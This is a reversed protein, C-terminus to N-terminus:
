WALSVEAHLDLLPSTREAPGRGFGCETAVGFHPLATSAASIRRRAGEVGDEHHILGLYIDTSAPIRDSIAALPAFYEVDDREIPVPLHIFDVHRPSKEVIGVLVDALHGTDTPQVFHNEEVDGYCLHYGLQVDAPVLSAQTVARELVGDLVDGGFWASIGRDHISAQELLAFELATDWQIALDAHPIAELLRTLEAYLARSYAPEVAARDEERVFAGVVAVPTPLSVQFRVGREIVEEDRLALFTAYSEIAATAYGLDPFVLDAGEVTGDLAFPRADFLDRIRPGPEGVRALGRTEDFRFSQFQIWYFREGVEGDPIRALHGGLHTTAARFV